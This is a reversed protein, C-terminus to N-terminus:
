KYSNILYPHQMYYFLYECKQSQTLLIKRKAETEDYKKKWTDTTGTVGSSGNEIVMPSKAPSLKSSVTPVPPPSPKNLSAFKSYCNNVVPSTSKLVGNFKSPSNTPSSPGSSVKKVVVTKPAVVSSPSTNIYKSSGIKSTAGSPLSTKNTVNNPKVSFKSPIQEYNLFQFRHLFLLHQIIRTHVTDDSNWTICSKM